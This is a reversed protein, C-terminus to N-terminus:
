QESEADLASAKGERNVAEVLQIGHTMETVIWNGASEGIRRACAHLRELFEPSCRFKFETSKVESKAM